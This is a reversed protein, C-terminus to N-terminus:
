DKVFYTAAPKLGASKLVYTAPQTVEIDGVSVITWQQGSIVRLSPRGETVVEVPGVPTTVASETSEGPSGVLRDLGAHGIVIYSGNPVHNFTFRGDEECKASEVVGDSGRELYSPMPIRSDNQGPFFEVGSYGDFYRHDILTTWREIAWETYPTDPLLHAENNSMGFRCPIQTGDQLTVRMVGTITAGGPKRYPEYDQPHLVPPTPGANPFHIAGRAELVKFEVTKAMVVGQRCALSAVVVAFILTKTPM